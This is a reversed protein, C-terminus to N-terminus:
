KTGEKLMNKIVERSEPPQKKDECNCDYGYRVTKPYEDPLIGATIRAITLKVTSCHRYCLTTTFRSDCADVVKVVDAHGQETCEVHEHQPHELDVRHAAQRRCM